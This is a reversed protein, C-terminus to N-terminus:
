WDKDEDQNLQKLSQKLRDQNASTSLLHETDDEGHQIDSDGRDEDDPLDDPYSGDESEEDDTEEFGLEEIADDSEPNDAHEFNDIVPIDHEALNGILDSVHVWGADGAADHPAPWFTREWDTIDVAGTPIAEGSREWASHAALDYFEFEQYSASKLFKGKPADPQDVASKMIMTPYEGEFYVETIGNAAHKAITAAKDADDKIFRTMVGQIVTQMDRDADIGMLHNGGDTFVVIDRSSDRVTKLDPGNDSDMELSAALDKKFQAVAAKVFEAADSGKAHGGLAVFLEGVEDPVNLFQKQVKLWNINLPDGKPNGFATNMQSVLQFTSKM